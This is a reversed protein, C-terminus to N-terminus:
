IHDIELGSGSIPDAPRSRLHARRRTVLKGTIQRPTIIFSWTATDGGCPGATNYGNVVRNSASSRLVESLDYTCTHQPGIINMVGSIPDSSSLVLTVPLTGGPSQSVGKWTPPIANSPSMSPEPQVSPMTNPPPPAENVAAIRESEHLMVSGNVLAVRLWRDETDTGGDHRVYRLRAVVSTDDRPSVSILEVSRVTEWFAVFERQGTQKQCYADLKAWADMPRAPLDRYYGTVFDRMSEFTITPPTPNTPARTTGSSAGNHEWPRVVFM